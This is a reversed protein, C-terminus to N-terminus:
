FDVNVGSNFIYYDFYIGFCLNSTHVNLKGMYLVIGLESYSHPCFSIGADEKLSFFLMITVDHVVNRNDHLLICFM